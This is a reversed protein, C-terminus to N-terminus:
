IPQTALEYLNWDEFQGNPLYRRIIINIKRQRLEERAQDAYSMDATKTIQSSAGRALCEARECLIRVREYKSLINRTKRKDISIRQFEDTTVHSYPTIKEYNYEAEPDFVIIPEEFVEEDEDVDDTPRDAEYASDKPM